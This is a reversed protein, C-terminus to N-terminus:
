ELFTRSTFHKEIMDVGMSGAIIAPLTGFTHDSFGVPKGFISKYVKIVNLNSNEFKCPYNSTM